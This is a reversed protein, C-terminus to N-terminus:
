VWIAFQMDTLAFAKPKIKVVLSQRLGFKHYGLAYPHMAAITQNHKQQSLHSM